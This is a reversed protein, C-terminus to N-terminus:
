VMVKKLLRVIRRTSERAPSDPPEPCKGTKLVDLICGIAAGLSPGYGGELVLSLPCPSVDRIMSTLVGFDAPSLRMAGKPDDGLPDQGASIIVLDPNFHTIADVFVHSFVM